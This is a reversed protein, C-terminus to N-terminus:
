RKTKHSDNTGGTNSQLDSGRKYLSRWQWKLKGRNMSLKKSFDLPSRLYIVLNMFTFSFRM